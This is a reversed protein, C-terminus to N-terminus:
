STVTNWGSWLFQEFRVPGPSAECITRCLPSSSTTWNARRAWTGHVLTVVLRPAAPPDPLPGVKPSSRDLVLRAAWSIAQWAIAAFLVAGYAGALILAITM